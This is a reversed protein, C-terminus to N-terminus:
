FVYELFTDIVNCFHMSHIHTARVFTAETDKIYTCQLDQSFITSIPVIHSLITFEDYIRNESYVQTQLKLINNDIIYKLLEYKKDRPNIYIYLLEKPPFLVTDDTTSITITDQELLVNQMDTVSNQTDINVYGCTYLIDIIIWFIFLEDITKKKTGVFITYWQLIQDTEINFFFSLITLTLVSYYDRDIVYKCLPSKRYENFLNCLREYTYRNIDYPTNGYWFRLSIYQLWGWNKKNYNTFIINQISNMTDWTTDGSQISYMIYSTYDLNKDCHYLEKRISQQLKRIIRTCKNYIQPQQVCLRNQYISNSEQAIACAKEIEHGAIYKILNTNNNTITDNTATCLKRIRMKQWNNQKDIDKYIQIQIQEQQYYLDKNKYLRLKYEECIEELRKQSKEKSITSYKLKIEKHIKQLLNRNNKIDISPINNSSINIIDNSNAPLITIDKQKEQAKIENLILLNKKNVTTNIDNEIEINKYEKIDEKYVERIFTGHPTFIKGRRLPIQEKYSINTQGKQRKNGQIM